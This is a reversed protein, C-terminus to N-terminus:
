RITVFDNHNLLSHILMVRARQEADTRKHKKYLEALEGLTEQCAAVEAANPECALVYEFAKRIFAIDDLPKKPDNLSAAIRQAADIAVKSNSLALAQQPIVSEDRRYCELVSPDDFMSLFRQQENFSHFFYMSRRQSDDQSVPVTPGGQQLDLTGALQLLSDRVVQSEMRIPNMRWLLQNEPDVALTVAAAGLNSSSRRYAESTVILRHIQKMKWGGDILERALYDLLPLHVPRASRRGFDFMSPVIGRGFHRAWIHNVAVRAPLPHRPDTLWMALATRRGTSTRPFPKALSEDTETNHGKVKQSGRLSTYVKGPKTANDHAARLKDILKLLAEEAPQKKGPEAQALQLIARLHEEEARAVAYKREALSAAAIKKDMDAAPSAGEFRARDAALCAQGWEPSLSSLKMTAAAARLKLRAIQGERMVPTLPLEDALEMNETLPWLLFKSFDASVNETVIDIRNTTSAPREHPLRFAMLWEWDLAVNVLSGRVRVIIQRSQDLKVPSTVVATQPAVEQGNEWWTLRIQSGKEHPALVIQVPRESGVDFAMGVSWPGKNTGISQFRMRATFDHPAPQKLRMVGRQQGEQRLAVGSYTKWNGFVSIWRSEVSNTLTDELLPKEYALIPSPGGSIPRGLKKEAAALTETAEAQEKRAAKDAVEAGHLFDRLVFDRALGPAYAVVPLKVPEIKLEGLSLLQPVGPTLVLSKDPRTDDGRIHKYTPLNLDCDFVRPLGDKELDPQGAVQDMRVQHPEFFARMRYYDNQSIPDYKHDHCKCCNLTLGLMGKSVHEITGDLWTTRNFYFYNRVLFGTARLKAPDGPYLEDAALMERLMQDYGTDSNLSDVIWDRWHWIHKQSNRVEAGLGWWDSYRWVDMWHRGWAEGYQPSALLRDVVKEYADPAPDALFTAQEAATPPLGTLDLYLRRLLVRRDASTQPVIGKAEFAVGLFADVPNRPQVTQKLSPLAPRVIPQFAWHKKPDEEPKDDNPYTAGQDIWRKLIEIQAPKLLEGEPPMQYGDDRSSVREILESDDSKGPKLIAGSSAGKHILSGADLRLGGANKLVGHCAYCSKKLIPKVDRVYDVAANETKNAAVTVRTPGIALLCGLLSFSVARLLRHASTTLSRYCIRNM